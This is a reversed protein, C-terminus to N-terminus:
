SAPAPKPTGDEAILRLVATGIRWAKADFVELDEVKPLENASFPKEGTFWDIAAQPSISTDPLLEILNSDAPFLLLIPPVGLAKALVLLEDITIRRRRRGEADPRGTEISGIPGPTLETEGLESCRAALQERTLGKMERITRVQAAVIDSFM